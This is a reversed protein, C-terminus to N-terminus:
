KTFSVPYISAVPQGDRTRAPAFKYAKMRRVFDGRCSPDKPLPDIAVDAVRGDAAVWFRLQYRGRPACDPPVILGKLDAPFIYSGVGGSGPGVDSGTGPGTGTGQGGGSGPGTGVSSAATAAVALNPIDVPPLSITAPDPMPIESVVITPPPPVDFAQPASFAPLAFFRVAPRSEGGGGGRPGPGNGGGALLAAGRWFLLAVLAGHALSVLLAAAGHRWRQTPLRLAPPPPLLAATSGPSLPSSAPHPM